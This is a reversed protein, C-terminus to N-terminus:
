TLQGNILSQGNRIFPYKVARAQLRRGRVEVSVDDGVEVAVPVRAFAISVGLTPSFTGSTIEGDGHTTHVNQHARLVGRERLVLGALKRAPRSDEIATKGIFERPAKLDVTWGLGSEMPTVSEDM